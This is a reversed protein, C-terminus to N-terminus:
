FKQVTKFIKNSAFTDLFIEIQVHKGNKAIKKFIPAVIPLRVFSQVALYNDVLKTPM